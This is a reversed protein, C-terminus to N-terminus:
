AFWARLGLGQRREGPAKARLLEKPRPPASQKAAMDTRMPKATLFNTTCADNEPSPDRGDAAVM